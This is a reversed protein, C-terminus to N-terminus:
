DACAPTQAPTRGLFLQRNYMCWGSNAATDRGIHCVRRVLSRGLIAACDGVLWDPSDAALWGGAACAGYKRGNPAVGRRDLHRHLLMKKHPLKAQVVFVLLGILRTAALEIGVGSLGTATRSELVLAQLFLVTEFGEVDRFFWNTLL